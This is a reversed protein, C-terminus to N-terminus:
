DGLNLKLKIPMLGNQNLYFACEEWYPQRPKIKPNLSFGFYELPRDFLGTELENNNNEDHYLMIAYVGKPLDRLIYTRTGRQSIKIVKELHANDFDMEKFARPDDFVAMRISGRPEKINSIELKLAFNEEGQIPTMFLLLLLLLFKM